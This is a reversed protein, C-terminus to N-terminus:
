QCTQTKVSVDSTATGPPVPLPRAFDTRNSLLSVKEEVCAANTARLPVLRGTSRAKTHIKYRVRFSDLGYPNRSFNFVNILSLHLSRRFDIM